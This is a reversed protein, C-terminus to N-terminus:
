PIPGQSIGKRAIGPPSKDTLGTETFEPFGEMVQGTRLEELDFTLISASRSEFPHVLIFCVSVTGPWLADTWDFELTRRLPESGLEFFQEVPSLHVNATTDGVIALKVDPVPERLSVLFMGTTKTGSVELKEVEVSVNRLIAMAMRCNELTLNPALASSSKFRVPEKLEYEINDPPVQDIVAGNIVPDHNRYALKFRPIELEFYLRNENVAPFYGDPQFAHDNKFWLATQSIRDSAISHVRGGSNLTNMKIRVPGLFSHYGFFNLRDWRVRLVTDPPLDKGNNKSDPPLEFAPYSTGAFSMYSKRGMVTLDVNMTKAKCGAYACKIEANKKALHGYDGEIM